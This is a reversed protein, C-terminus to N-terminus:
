GADFFEDAIQARMAQASGYAQELAKGRKLWLHLDHEWTFGIGGHCQLAHDNAASEAQSAAAKAVAVAVHAEPSRIALLHAAVRTAPRALEIALHADALRHKVAQFSGVPRGFQVRRGVYETTVEVLRAGIGILLAAAGIALRGRLRLRDESAVSLLTDAGTRIDLHALRRSHDFGRMPSGTVNEAPVAHLEGSTATLVLDAELGALVMPEESLSVTAVLDGALLGPLWRKRQAPTGLEALTMAVVSSELLPGPVACRGAEELALVLELETLGAGGYEETVGIGVLGLACLRRWLHPDVGRESTWAARVASPPCVARLGARAGATLDQQERSLQLDM